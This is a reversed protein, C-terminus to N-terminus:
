PTLEVQGHKGSDEPDGIKARLMSVLSGLRGSPSSWYRGDTCELTLVAIGPTDRGEDFYAAAAVNWLRDIEDKSTTLSAVANLSVWNNERTDSVTVHVNDNESLGQAWDTTGDVLVKITDENFETVTLPRSSWERNADQTVVMMTTGPNILDALKM